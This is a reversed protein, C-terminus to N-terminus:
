HRLTDSVLVGHLVGRHSLCFQLLASPVVPFGSLSDRSDHLKSGLPLHLHTHLYIIESLHAPSVM